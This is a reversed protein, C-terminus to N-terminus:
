THADTDTYTDTDHSTSRLTHTQSRRIECRVKADKTDRLLKTLNRRLERGDQQNEKAADNTKARERQTAPQAM